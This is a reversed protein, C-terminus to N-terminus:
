KKPEQKKVAKKEANDAAATQAEVAKKEEAVAAELDKKIQDLATKAAADGSM